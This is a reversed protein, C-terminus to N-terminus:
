PSIPSNYDFLQKYYFSFGFRLSFTHWDSNEFFENFTQTILLEPALILSEQKNVYFEYKIGMAAGFIIKNALPLDGKFQNRVRQNNEFTGKDKPEILREEQNVKQFTLNSISAGLMFEANRFVNTNLFLELGTGIMQSNISHEITANLLENNIVIPKNEKSILEGGFGIFSFRPELSFVDNLKHNYIIGFSFDLGTGNEFKSCCNEIQPLSQFSASHFNFTSNGFIGWSNDSRSPKVENEQGFSWYTSFIFFILFQAYFM